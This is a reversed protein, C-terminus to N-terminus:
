GKTGKPYEALVFQTTKIQGMSWYRVNVKDGPRKDMELSIYELLTNMKKHDISLIVDFRKLGAEVAPGNKAINEIVLGNEPLKHHLLSELRTRNTQYLFVEPPFVSFGFWGYRVHGYKLIDNVVRQMSDVPIAFGIGSSGKSLTAIATNIGVLEGEANALAGGSNGPNIPADTQIANVLISQKTPLTRGLSSVIGASLTNAYGLPNGVAIVWEGVKLNKSSGIKIPPLDKADIKLVALDSPLDVGVIKADFVRAGKQADTVHVQVINADQIVHHNTVIIGNKNLIVGSGEAKPAIFTQGDSTRHAELTDISVVSPMVLRASFEFGRPGQLPRLHLPMQDSSDSAAGEIFGDAEQSSSGLIFHRILLTSFIAGVFFAGTIWLTKKTM